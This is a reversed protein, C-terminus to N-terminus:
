ELRDLVDELTQEERCIGPELSAQSYFNSFLVLFILAYSLIMYNFLKPYNCDHLTLTYVSHFIVVIFQIIQAATM